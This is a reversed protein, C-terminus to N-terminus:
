PEETWANIAERLVREEALRGAFHLGDARRTLFTLIEAEVDRDMQCLAAYHRATELLEVVIRDADAVAKEYGHEELYQGGDRHIRALLNALQGAATPSM